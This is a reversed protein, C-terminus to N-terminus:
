RELVPINPYWLAVDWIAKATTFVPFDGSGPPLYCQTIGRPMHNGTAIIIFQHLSKWLTSYGNVKSYKVKRWPHWFYSLLKAGLFTGFVSKIVGTLDLVAIVVVNATIFSM